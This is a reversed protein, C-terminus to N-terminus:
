LPLQTNEGPILCDTIDLGDVIDKGSLKLLDDDFTHLMKAKSVLATAVHVADPTSLTKQNRIAQAKEAVRVDVAVISLLKRNRLFERFKEAAGEPMTTELVEPYILTSMVLKFSGNNLSQVVSRIRQIRSTDENDGKIWSIFVSSDWCILDQKM